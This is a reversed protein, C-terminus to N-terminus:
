FATKAASKKRPEGFNIQETRVAASRHGKVFVICLWNFIQVLRTCLPLTPTPHPPCFSWCAFFFLSGPFTLTSYSIPHITFAQHLCYWVQFGVVQPRSLFSFSTGPFSSQSSSIFKWIGTSWYYYWIIIIDGFSKLFFWTQNAIICLYILKFLKGKM